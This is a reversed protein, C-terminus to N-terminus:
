LFPRPTHELLGKEMLTVETQGEKDTRGEKTRGDKTRGEEDQRGGLQFLDKWPRKRAACRLRRLCRPPAGHVRSSRSVGPGGAVRPGHPLSSLNAVFTMM